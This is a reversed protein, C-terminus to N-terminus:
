EPSPRLSTTNSQNTQTADTHRERRAYRIIYLRTSSLTSTQLRMMWILSRQVEQQVLAWTLLHLSKSASAHISPLNYILTVMNGSCQFLIMKHAFSKWQRWMKQHLKFVLATPTVAGNSMTTSIDGSRWLMM